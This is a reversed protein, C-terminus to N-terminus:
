FDISIRVDDIEVSLGKQKNSIVYTLFYSFVGFFGPNIM